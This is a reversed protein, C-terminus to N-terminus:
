WFTVPRFKGEIEVNVSELTPDLTSNLIKLKKLLYHQFFNKSSMHFAGYAMSENEASKQLSGDTWNGMHKDLYRQEWPPLSRTNGKDDKTVEAYLLYNLKSNGKMGSTPTYAPVASDVWPYTQYQIGCPEFNLKPAPTASPADKNELAFGITGTEKFLKLIQSKVDNILVTFSQRAGKPVKSWDQTGFYSAEEKYEATDFNAVLENLSYKAPLTDGVTEKFKDSNREVETMGLMVHFAIAWGKLVYKDSEMTGQMSISSFDDPDATSPEEDSLWQLMCIGDDFRIMYNLGSLAKDFSAEVVVEPALVRGKLLGNVHKPTTITKRLPSDDPLSDFKTSLGDNIM